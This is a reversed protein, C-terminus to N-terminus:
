SYLAYLALNVNTNANLEAQIHVAITHAGATLVGAAMLTGYYVQATGPVGVMSHNGGGFSGTAISIETGDLLIGIAEGAGDTANQFTVVAIAFVWGGKSVIAISLTGEGVQSAQAMQVQNSAPQGGVGFFLSEPM